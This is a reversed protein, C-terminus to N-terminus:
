IEELFLNLMILSFILHSYQELNSDSSILKTLEQRNFLNSQILKGELLQEQMNKRWKGKFFEGLPIAFGKKGGNLIFDPIYDSFSNKLIYKKNGKYLKYNLPLSNAFDVISDDLLPSRIELATAKSAIDVKAFVDSWLYTKQDFEQCKEILNTSKMDIFSDFINEEDKLKFNCIKNKLQTNARNFITMYQLNEAQSACQFLRYLKHSIGRENGKRCLKALNGFFSKRFNTPLKNIFQLYQMVLYRNYGSFFEDGGDGSLVIPLTERAFQNLYYTPIISADAFPEGYSKALKKVVEFDDPTVIKVHHIVKNNYKQNLFDVTRGANLSEDYSQNNFGITFAHIPSNALEASLSTIITSDIGGSLFCGVQNNDPLRSTVANKVLQQLRNKSEAFSLQTKNNLDVEYYRFIKYNGNKIDLELISAPALKFTNKYITKTGYIAQFSLFESILSEDIELPELAKVTTLKNSFILENDCVSYFLPKKGLRDRILFVKQNEADYLALSFQGNIKRIFNIGYEHYLSNILETRSQNELSYNKANLEKQLESFNYITGDFISTIKHNSIIKGAASNNINKQAFVVKKDESEFVTYEPQSLKNVSYKTNIIGYMSFM